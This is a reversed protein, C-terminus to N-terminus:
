RQGTAVVAIWIQSQFSNDDWNTAQVQYAVYRGDPSIHPAQATKLNLSQDITPTISNSALTAPALALGSIALAFVYALTRMCNTGVWFRFQNAFGSGRERGTVYYPLDVYILAM